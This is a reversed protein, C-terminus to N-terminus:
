SAEPSIVIIGQGPRFISGSFDEIIPQHIFTGYSGSTDSSLLVVNFENQTATLSGSKTLVADTQGYPMMAWSLTSASLDVPSGTSDEVTFTLTYENGAIFSFKELNNVTICAYSATM